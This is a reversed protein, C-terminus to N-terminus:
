PRRRATDLLPQHRVSFNDVITCPLHSAALTREQSESCWDTRFHETSLSQTVCCPGHVRICLLINCNLGDPRGARATRARPVARIHRIAVLILVPLWTQPRHRDCRRRAIAIEVFFTKASSISLDRRTFDCRRWSYWWPCSLSHCPGPSWRLAFRPACPCVPRRIQHNVAVSVHPFPNVLIHPHM